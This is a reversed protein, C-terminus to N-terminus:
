GMRRFGVFHMADFSRTRFVHLQCIACLPGGMRLLLKLLSAEQCQHSLFKLIVCEPKIVFKQWFFGFLMDGMPPRAAAQFKQMLFCAQKVSPGHLRKAVCGGPM